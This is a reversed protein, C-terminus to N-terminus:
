RMPRTPSRSSRPRSARRRPAAGQGRAGAGSRERVRALPQLGLLIAVANIAIMGVGFVLSLHRAQREFGAIENELETRNGMVRFRAVRNEADLVFESEFM